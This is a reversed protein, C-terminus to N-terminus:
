LSSVSVSVPSTYQPNCKYPSSHGVEFNVASYKKEVKLANQLIKKLTPTNKFVIIKVLFFQGKLIDSLSAM